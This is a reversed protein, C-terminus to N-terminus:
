GYVGVERLTEWMAMINEPPVEAQINHVTNFVFGGGPMLAEVNRRVDERVEDPTGRPLVAQTEVGGGWFTLDDGFDKKLGAPEMGEASVHVPNLIDVGMDIFDPLYPRVSGCSHFFVYGKEGAPRAAAHRERLFAFLERLRPLFFQRFTDYSILQSQQTGYDDAEMVVDILDGAEALAAAWFRKKLDLVKDFICEATAPEALLDCLCNEMGRLRQAMEFIGACLGKCVVPFGADRYAQATQRLGALRRPDEPDCWAHADVAAPDITSGDLPHGVISWWHGGGEIRQVLGWEDTHERAPEGPAPPEAAGEPFGWNSSTLPFLGRTDIELREALEPGPVVAQQSVDAFVVPEPDIGLHRCLNRYATVHITSVNTSGLDFPVRDAERHELAALLRERSTM